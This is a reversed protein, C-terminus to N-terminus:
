NYRIFSYEGIVYVVGVVMLAIGFSEKVMNKKIVMYIINLILLLFMLYMQFQIEYTVKKRNIKDPYLFSIDMTSM